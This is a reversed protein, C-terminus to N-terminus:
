LGSVPFATNSALDYVADDHLETVEAASARAWKLQNPGGVSPIMVEPFSATQIAIMVPPAEPIPFAVASSTASSPAFTPRPSRALLSPSCIAFVIPAIPAVKTAVSTRSAFDTSFRTRLAHPLNPPRSTKNLLAPMPTV